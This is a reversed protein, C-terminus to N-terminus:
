LPAGLALWGVTFDRALGDMTDCWVRLVVACVWTLWVLFWVVVLCVWFRMVVWGLWILLWAWVLLGVLGFDCWVVSSLDVM